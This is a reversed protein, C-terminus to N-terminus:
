SVGLAFSMIFCLYKLYVYYNALCYGTLYMLQNVNYISYSNSFSYIM